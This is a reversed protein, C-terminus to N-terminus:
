LKNDQNPAGFNNQQGENEIPGGFHNHQNDQEHQVGDNAIDENGALGNNLHLADKDGLDNVEDNNIGINAVLNKLDVECNKRYKWDNDSACSDDNSHGVKNAFLDSLTSEHHINHFKIGDPMGEQKRM